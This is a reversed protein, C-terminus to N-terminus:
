QNQQSFFYPLHNRHKELHNSPLVEDATESSTEDSNKQATKKLLIDLNLQKVTQRKEKLM